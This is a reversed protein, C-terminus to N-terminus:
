GTRYSIKKLRIQLFYKEAQETLFMKLRNQLFYKEAQETLFAVDLASKVRAVSAALQDSPNSKPETAFVPVVGAKAAISAVRHKQVPFKSGQAVL